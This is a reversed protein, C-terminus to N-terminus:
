KSMGKLCNTTVLSYVVGSVIVTVREYVWFVIITVLSYRGRWVCHCDSMMIAVLFVGEPM